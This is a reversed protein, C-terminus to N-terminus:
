NWSARRASRRRLGTAWTTTSAASAAARREHLPPHHGLDLPTPAALTEGLNHAVWIRRRGGASAALREIEAARGAEVDGAVELGRIPRAQLVAFQGAVM